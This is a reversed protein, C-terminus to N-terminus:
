RQASVGAQEESVRQIVDAIWAAAQTEGVHDYWWQRGQFSAPRIWDSSWWYRGSVTAWLAAAAAVDGAVARSEGLLLRTAQQQPALAYAAQLHAMAADYDGLSLEIQGLRRNAAANNPSLRLAERYRAIAPALEAVAARRVADQVGWEPWVYRSLELRTQEVAALNAQMAARTSPLLLIVLTTALALGLALEQLPMGAVRRPEAGPLAALSRDFGWAFGIPIFLVFPVRAAYVGVDFVGYVTLAALAAASGLFLASSRQRRGYRGLAMWALTLMGALCALGPLGQEIATQLYLNHMHGIFGVHILMVYTAHVMMTSGLGSGTFPYDGILDLGQQWLAVRGPLTGSSDQRSLWVGAAPWAAAALFFLLLGLGALALLGDGARQARLTRNPRNRWALYVGVAAGALLGLWAARSMSLVLAALAVVVALAAGAALVRRRRQWAWAAGGAALPALLALGGGAVNTHIDEAEGVAPRMGQIWAGVQELAPMKGLARGMWDFTLLFYLALLGAALACGLAVWGLADEGRRWGLHGILLAAAVGVAILGFRLWAASRDYAAWVGVLATLLYAISLAVILRRSTM